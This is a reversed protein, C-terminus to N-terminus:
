WCRVLQNDLEHKTWSYRWWVELVKLFWLKMQKQWPFKEVIFELFGIISKFSIIISEFFFYLFLISWIM